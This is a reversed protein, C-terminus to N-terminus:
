IGSRGKSKTSIAAWFMYQQIVGSYPAYRDFPFGKPYHTKLVREIWVDVPFANLRHFGFLMVCSAVKEGVGPLEKL